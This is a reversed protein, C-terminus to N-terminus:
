NEPWSGRSTRRRLWWDEDSQDTFQGPQEWFKIMEENVNDATVPERRRRGDGPRACYAPLRM